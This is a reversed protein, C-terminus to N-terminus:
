QPEAGPDRPDEEPLLIGRVQDLLVNAMGTEGLAIAARVASFISNIEAAQQAAVTAAMLDTRADVFAEIKDTVAEVVEAPIGYTAAMLKIGALPDVDAM